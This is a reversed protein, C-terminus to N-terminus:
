TDHVIDQAAASSGTMRRVVRYLMDKHERYASRYEADDM